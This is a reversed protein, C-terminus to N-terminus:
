FDNNLFYKNHDISRKIESDPWPFKFKNVKSIGIKDLTADQGKIDGYFNWLDELNKVAQLIKNTRENKHLQLYGQDLYNNYRALLLPCNYKLIKFFQNSGRNLLDLHKKKPYEDVQKDQIVCVSQEQIQEEEEQESSSTALNQYPFDDFLVKYLKFEDKLM